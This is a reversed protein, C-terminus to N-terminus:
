VGEFFEIKDGEKLTVLAKKWDPRKGKRMRFGRMKGRMTLTNVKLVTVGFLKEVAQKIEPKKARIDVQFVVKNSEDKLITSKETIIPMKIISYPDKM